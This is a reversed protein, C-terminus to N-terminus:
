QNDLWSTINAEIRAIEQEYSLLLLSQQKDAVRARELFVFADSNNGASASLLAQRIRIQPDPNFDFAQRLQILAPNFQRYHM